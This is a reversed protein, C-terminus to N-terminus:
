DSIIMTRLYTTPKITTITVVITINIKVTKEQKQGSEQRNQM